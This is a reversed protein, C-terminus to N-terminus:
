PCLVIRHKGISSESLSSCFSFLHQLRRMTKGHNGHTLNITQCALRNRYAAVSDHKDLCFDGRSYLTGNPQVNANLREVIVDDMERTDAFPRNCYRIIKFHGLHFDSTFWTDAM